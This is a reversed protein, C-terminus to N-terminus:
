PEPVTTPLRAVVRFGDPTPGASFDGGYAAVRERMGILGHGGRAAGTADDSAPVRGPRGQDRVEIEIDDNTYRVRVDASASGAHRVVNTLAEQAIRYASLDIGPALTRPEGEVHLAVSVGADDLRNILSPLDSLGPAPGLEAGDNGGERLVTVLMRLDALAQRSISEIIALAEGAEQPSSQMVIRGVGSRVAIVSMSHALVDHLERAIRLREDDTAREVREDAQEQARQAVARAYARRGRTNVGALGAALVVAPAGIAQEWGTAGFSILSAAALGLVVSGGALLSFRGDVTEDAMASYLCLAVVFPTPGRVGALIVSVTLITTAALVRRPFDHRLPLLACCLVIAVILLVDGGSGVPILQRADPAGIVGTVALAAAVVIDLLIRDRRSLRQAFPVAPQADV